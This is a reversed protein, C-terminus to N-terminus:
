ILFYVFYWKCLYIVRVISWGTTYSITWYQSHKFSPWHKHIYQRHKFTIIEGKRRRGKKRQTHPLAPTHTYAHPYTSLHTLTYPPSVIVDYYCRHKHFSETYNMKENSLDLSVVVECKWKKDWAIRVCHRYNLSFWM